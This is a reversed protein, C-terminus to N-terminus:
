RAEEFGPIPFEVETTGEKVEVGGLTDAFVVEPPEPLAEGHDRWVYARHNVLWRDGGKRISWIEFRRFTREGGMSTPGKREKFVLARVADGERVAALVRREEFFDPLEAVRSRIEELAEGEVREGGDEGVALHVFIRDETVVALDYVGPLLDAFLATGDVRGPTGERSRERGRPLAHATLLLDGPRVTLIIGAPSGAAEPAPGDFAVSEVYVLDTLTEGVEGREEKRLVVKSPKETGEPYVFLVAVLHGRYVQGTRLTVTTEYDRRPYSEGTFVKERSGDEVWRWIRYQEETAVDVEIRWIEGVALDLRRDTGTEILRIPKGRTTRIPGTLSTGDSLVITGPAREDDDEARAPAPVSVLLIM